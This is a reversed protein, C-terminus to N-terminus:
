VWTVPNVPLCEVMDGYFSAEVALCYFHLQIYRYVRHCATVGGGGWVCVCLCCVCM